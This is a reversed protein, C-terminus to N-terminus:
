GNGFLTGPLPLYDCQAVGFDFKNVSAGKEGVQLRMFQSVILTLAQKSNKVTREVIVLRDQILMSM